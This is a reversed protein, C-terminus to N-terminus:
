LGAQDLLSRIFEVDAPLKKFKRTWISPDIMVGIIKGHEENFRTMLQEGSTALYLVWPSIKGTKILYAAENTSIDAFFNDFSTNNKNCWEMIQIISRDTASDAPETKTLNEIYIEYTSDKTWNKLDIGNKIVFEIFQEPYVPKLTAIYNGFKAFDIYYASDIFEQPTKIKKSNMSLEYFKQFTRLGFRSGATNIDAHRRKKICVHTNLTALKAFSKNCYKCTHPQQM